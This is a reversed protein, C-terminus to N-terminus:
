HFLRCSVFYLVMLGVIGILIDGLILRFNQWKTLQSPVEVTRTITETTTQTEITTPLSVEVPRLGAKNRLEHYLSGDKVSAKSWAMDTEITSSTDRTVNVVTCDRVPYYVISDQWVTVVKYEVKTDTGEVIKPSCSILGLLCLIGFLYRTANNM